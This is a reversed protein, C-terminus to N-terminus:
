NEGGHVTILINGLTDTRYIQAGSAALRRMAEESPHGYNNDGVCIVALEPRIEKLFAPDSSNKSGHHSVVLLEIDPLDYAAILQKETTGAMDGTVLVDFDGASCLITLGQENMDGEGIPPLVTLEAEGMLMQNPSTIFRVQTGNQEALSVLRDRVGFEDEIDALWLQDVPIRSLLTVMGNAHDAHYHTLVVASLRSIGMSSIQDAARRGADIYSNSSGSDVLVADSGSYLLVCEGQGVDIAMANLTGYRYERSNLGLTFFLTLLALAGALFCRRKNGRTLCCLGLLVYVYALWFKLYRNSFYLAHGPLLTLCRVLLLIYHVMGWNLWGVIRAAPLWIFGLLVTVLGVMFNWGAVPVALFNSLPSILTLINFYYATLPITFVLVSLSASVNASALSVLHRVRRRKGRYLGTLFTHIRGSLLVLGLTAAFSLQLGIGGAAYPNLLLLILLAAGLSTLSDSDRKFLPAALLAIQMVCARVVSPTMGVMVMYFLLVLIAVAAFLRRRSQPILLGLLTVLFACHLGSVAFLHLLGTESMAVSHEQSIHSRDGTLEALLFSETAPDDWIRGIMEKAAHVARQPLFLLSGERYPEATLPGKAMLLVFEGKATFSTLDNGRIRATNQWRATGSIRQGPQLDLQALDGYYVAKVGPRLWLTVKEGYNADTPYDAVVGSFSHVEGCLEVVPRCLLVRYMDFYALAVAMSCLILIARKVHDHKKYLFSFIVALLLLSCAAYLQWGDWPLLVAAFTAAAFSFAIVALKRM